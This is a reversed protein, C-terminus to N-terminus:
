LHQEHIFKLICDALKKGHLHKFTPPLLNSLLPGWYQFSMRGRESSIGPISFSKSSFRTNHSHDSPHLLKSIAAPKGSASVKCIFLLQHYLLQQALPLRNLTCLTSSTSSGRKNFLIARGCDVFKSSLINKLYQPAGHQYIIDGYHLHCSGIANFLQIMLHRPFCTRMKVLVFIVSSLKSIIHKIHHEFTLKSDLYIGLFKHIMVQEIIKGNLSFHYDDYNVLRRPFFVHTQNNKM